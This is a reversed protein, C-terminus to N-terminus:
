IVALNLGLRWEYSRALPRALGLALLIDFARGGLPVNEGAKKLSREFVNLEFPEFRIKIAETSRRQDASM